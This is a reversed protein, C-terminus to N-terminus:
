RAARERAAAENLEVRVGNPDELFAQRSGTGPVDVVRHAIGRAQLRTVLGDLDDV